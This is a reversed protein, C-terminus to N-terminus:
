QFLNIYAICKLMRFFFEKFCTLKGKVHGVHREKLVWSYLTNGHSGRQGCRKRYQLSKLLGNSALKQYLWMQKHLQVYVIEEFGSSNKHIIVWLWCKSKKLKKCKIHKCYMAISEVQSMPMYAYQAKMM